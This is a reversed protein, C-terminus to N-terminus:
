SSGIRLFRMEYDAMKGKLPVLELFVCKMTQWKVRLLHVLELFVCKM